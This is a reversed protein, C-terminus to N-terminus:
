ASRSPRTSWRINTNFAGTNQGGFYAYGARDVAIGFATGVGIRASFVVVPDIILARSRDYSGVDFALEHVGALRYRAAVRERRRDIQQYVVPARQVITRNGRRSSVDGAADM